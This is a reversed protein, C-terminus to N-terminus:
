RKSARGKGKQHAEMYSRLVANVRTQYGKGLSKFWALVDPDLRFSTLQKPTPMVVRANEWVAPNTPLADPDSLARRHVEEDSLARFEEWSGSLDRM